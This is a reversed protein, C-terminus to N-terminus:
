PFANFSITHPVGFFILSSLGAGRQVLKWIHDSVTKTEYNFDFWEDVDTTGLLCHHHIGIALLSKFISNDAEYFKKSLISCGRAIANRCEPLKLAKATAAAGERKHTFLSCYNTLFFLRTLVFPYYCLVKIVLCVPSPSIKWPGVM